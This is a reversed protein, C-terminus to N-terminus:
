GDRQKPVQVVVDDPGLKRGDAAHLELKRVIKKDKRDVLKSLRIESTNYYREGWQRLAVIVFFLDRGKATLSYESYASGDSAPVIELIDAAVLKALRNSLINKAIGINKEFEGFRKIGDLADRIILLSWWDGIVDLSRSVPCSTEDLKKRAVM